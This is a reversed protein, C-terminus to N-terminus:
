PRSVNNVQESKTTLIIEGQGRDCPPPKTTSHSRQKDTKITNLSADHQLYQM